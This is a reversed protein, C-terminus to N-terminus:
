ATQLDPPTAPERYHNLIHIAHQDALIDGFPPRYSPAAKIKEAPYAVVVTDDDILADRLDVLHASKRVLGYTVVAAGWPANLEAPYHYLASIRGVTRGQRDRLRRGLVDEATFRM